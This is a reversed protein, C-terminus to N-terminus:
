EAAVALNWLPEPRTPALQHARDTADLALVNSEANKNLPAEAQLAASLDILLDINRSRQIAIALDLQETEAEIAAKLAEVSRSPEVLLLRVVGAAHLNAPKPDSSTESEIRWAVPFLKYFSPDEQIKLEPGRHPSFLPRHPFHALRGAERRTAPAADVLQPLPALQQPERTESQHRLSFLGAALAVAISAAAALTKGSWHYSRRKETAVHGATEGGGMVTSYCEDCTTMHEIVRRRTEPDLKGDLFSALTEDSPFGTHEM